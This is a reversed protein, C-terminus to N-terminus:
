AKGWVNRGGVKNESFINFEAGTWHYTKVTYGAKKAAEDVLEQAAAFNEKDVADM